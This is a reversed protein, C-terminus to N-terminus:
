FIWGRKNTMVWLLAHIAVQWGIALIVFLSRFGWSAWDGMYLQMALANVPNIIAMAQLAKILIKEILEM